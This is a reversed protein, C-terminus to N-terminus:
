RMADVVQLLVCGRAAWVASKLYRLSSLTYCCLLLMDAIIARRTTGERFQLKLAAAVSDDRTLFAAATRCCSILVAVADRAVTLESPMSLAVPM